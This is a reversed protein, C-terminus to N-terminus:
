CCIYTNKFDGYMSTINGSEDLTAKMNRNYVDNELDEKTIVMFDEPNKTSSSIVTIDYSQYGKGLLKKYVGTITVNKSETEPRTITVTGDDAIKLVSTNSSKWEVDKGIEKEYDYLNFNGTIYQPNDTENEFSVFPYDIMFNDFSAQAYKNSGWKIGNYALILLAVVLLFKLFGHKKKRKVKKQKPPKQNRGNNGDGNYPVQFGPSGPPTMPQRQFGPSGQPNVAHCQGGPSGPAVVPRHQNTYVPQQNVGQKYGYPTNQPVNHNNIGYANNQNSNSKNQNM